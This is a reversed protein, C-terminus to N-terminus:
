DLSGGRWMGASRILRTVPVEGRRIDLLVRILPFGDYMRCRALANETCTKADPHWASGYCGGQGVALALHVNCGQGVLVADRERCKSLAARQAAEWDPQGWSLGCSNSEASYAIAGFSLLDRQRQLEHQRQRERRLAELQQDRIQEERFRRQRLEEDQRRKEEAPGPATWEGCVSCTGDPRPASRHHGYRLYTAHVDDEWPGHCSCGCFSSCSHHYGLVCMTSTM